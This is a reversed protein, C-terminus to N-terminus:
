NLHDRKILILVNITKPILNQIFLFMKSYKVWNFYELAALILTYILSTFTLNKILINTVVCSIWRIQPASDYFSSIEEIHKIKSSSFTYSFHLIM